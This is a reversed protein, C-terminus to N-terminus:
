LDERRVRVAETADGAQKDAHVLLSLLIALLLFSLIIMGIHDRSDHWRSPRMPFVSRVFRNIKPPAIERPLLRMQM